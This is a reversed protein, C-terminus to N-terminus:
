RAKAAQFTALSALPSWVRGGDLSRVITGNDGTVYLTGDASWFIGEVRNRASADGGDMRFGDPAHAVRQWSLGGDRSLYIGDENTATVAGPSGYGIFELPNSPNASVAAMRQAVKAFTAGRDPSAFCADAAANDGFTCAVIRQGDASVATRQKGGTGASGDVVTSWTAGGDTSRIVLPAIQAGSLPERNRDQFLVATLTRPRQPDVVLQVVRTIPWALGTPLQRWTRGADTSTEIIGRTLWPVKGSALAAAESGYKEAFGGLQTPEGWYWTRPNTPDVTLTAGFANIDRAAWLDWTRGHDATSAVGAGLGAWAMWRNATMSGPGSATTVYTRPDGPGGFSVQPTPWCLAGDLTRFPTEYGPIDVRSWSAGADRSVFLGVKEVAAWLTRPDRPDIAFSHQYIRYNEKLTGDIVRPGCSDTPRAQYPWDKTMPVAGASARNGWTLRGDPGRVCQLGVGATEAGCREGLVKGPHDASSGAYDHALVDQQWTLKRSGPTVECAVQSWLRGIFARQGEISCPGGLRAKKAFGNAPIPDFQGLRIRVAQWALSGASNRACVLAAGSAAKAKAGAKACRGNESPAAHATGTTGLALALALSAPLLARLRLPSLM